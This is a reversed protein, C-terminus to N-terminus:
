GRAPLSGAKIMKRRLVALAALGALTLPPLAGGGGGTNVNLSATKTVTVTGDPNTCTLTYTKTGTITPTLSMSGSVAQSGTWDGGSANCSTVNSTTLWAVTSSQGLTITSPNASISLTPATSTSGNLLLAGTNGPDLHAKLQATTSSNSAWAVDFRSYYDFATNGCAASGGSVLGFIRHNQDYIGSGSSGEEVSGSSYRVQWTKISRTENFFGTFEQSEALRTPSTNYFTIKKVDGEPHHIIAGNQPADSSSATWGALYANFAPDPAQTLRLLTFDSTVDGAVLTSGIQNQGLGTDTGSGCQNNVYNWYFAVSSPPFSNAGSSANGIECHNATIFLPDNNHGTNNLLQGTCLLTGGVTIRAVSHVESSWPAAQACAVDIECSGSVDGTGTKGFGRFGHNVQGLEIQMQDKVSAPVRAEIVATDGPVVATWLKGNPNEQASTYPGQVLQGAADYIWMAGGVPMHFKAFEFNLTEANASFIRTRWSWTNSDIKTWVGDSMKLPLAAGVAFQFPATKSQAVAVAKQTKLVPLSHLPISDLGTLVPKFDAAVAAASLAMLLTAAILKNM